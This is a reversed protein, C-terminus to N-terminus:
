GARLVREALLLGIVTKADTITGAVVEDVAAALPLVEVSMHREEAGHAQPPVVVLDRALYVHVLHDTTGAMAHFATLLQIRGARYGAEEGLERQATLDPSEGEVDRLGAPIELLDDGLPARFQRVLVVHPDGPAGELVPVVAVAGPMRVVDREFTEGDPSVFTEQVLHVVYGRHIEREATRRFATM